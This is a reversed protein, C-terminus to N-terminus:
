YPTGDKHTFAGDGEVYLDIDPYHCADEASRTGIELYVAVESGRNVLHHGDPLNKPFAACDGARLPEEGGDTVLVLEGSLVYVFEDERTHWHRQSSWGGPPLQSLNVGFDTLGGADGLAQKVRDKAVLAFPAPYGSGRRQPVNTVHIKPM